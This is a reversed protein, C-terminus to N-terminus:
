IMSEQSPNFVPVHSEWLDERQFLETPTMNAYKRFDRYLHSQDYYGCALALELSSSVREERIMRFAQQFRVLNGYSKPTLGVEDKFVRIFRETSLNAQDAIVAVQPQIAIPSHELQQLAFAVAPHGKPVLMQKELLRLLFQEVRQFRPEAGSAELLRDRLEDVRAQRGLGEALPMDVDKLEGMLDGLFPLAGGPKFEIGLCAEQCVTDLYYYSSRPGAILSGPLTAYREMRNGEYVRIRDEKLNIIWALSVDPLKSEFPHDPRYGECSWLKDIWKTLPHIPQRAHFIM